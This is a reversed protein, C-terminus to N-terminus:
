LSSMKKKKVSRYLLSDSFVRGSAYDPSYQYAEEVSTLKADNLFNFSDLFYISRMDSVETLVKNPFDAACGEEVEDLKKALPSEQMMEIVESEESRGQIEDMSKSFTEDDNGFPIEDDSASSRVSPRIIREKLEKCLMISPASMQRMQICIHDHHRYIPSGM